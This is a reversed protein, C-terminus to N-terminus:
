AGVSNKRKTGGTQKQGKLPEYRKALIMLDDICDQLNRADEAWINGDRLIEELRRVIGRIPTSETTTTGM